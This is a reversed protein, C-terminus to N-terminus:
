VVKLFHGDSHYREIVSQSFTIHIQGPTRKFYQCSEDSKEGMVSFLEAKRSSRCAVSVPDKERSLLPSGLAFCILAGLAAAALILSRRCIDIRRSARVLGIALTNDSAGMNVWVGRSTNM